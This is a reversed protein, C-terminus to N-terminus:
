ARTANADVQLARLRHAVSVTIRRQGSLIMNVMTHSIEVKDALERNSLGLDQAIRRFEELTMELARMESHSVIIEEQKNRIREFEEHLWAPPYFDILDISSILDSSGLRRVKFDGLYEHEKMYAFEALLRDWHYRKNTGNLDLNCWDALNKISLTRPKGRSIRWFISLLTTLYLTISHKWHNETIIKRLLKTYQKGKRNKKDQFFADQYWYPSAQITITDNIVGNSYKVLHRSDVHFLKQFKVEERRGDKRQAVIVLNTLLFLIDTAKRKLELNFAGSPDREYGLERLVHNVNWQFYGTRSNEELFVVLALFHRLGEGRFTKHVTEALSEENSLHGRDNLNGIAYVKPTDSLILQPQFNPILLGGSDRIFDTSEQFTTQILGQILEQEALSRNVQRKRLALRPLRTRGSFMAVLTLMLPAVSPLAFTRIDRVEHEIGKKKGM